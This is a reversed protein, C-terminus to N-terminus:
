MGTCCAQHMALAQNFKLPIQNGSGARRRRLVEEPEPSGGHNRSSERSLGEETARNGPDEESEKIVHERCGCWCQSPRHAKMKEPSVLAVGKM